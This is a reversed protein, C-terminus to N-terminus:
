RPHSFVMKEGVTGAILSERLYFFFGSSKTEEEDEFYNGRLHTSSSKEFFSMCDIGNLDRSSKFVEVLNAKNRREKLSWLEM